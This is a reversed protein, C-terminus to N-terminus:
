PTALRFKALRDLYTIFGEYPSSGKAFNCTKCCPVCNDPTYGLDNDKRDVGNYIYPLRNDSISLDKRQSHVPKQLGQPSTGCYHCDQKTLSYFQDRSLSFELERKVAGRKYHIILSNRAAEDGPLSHWQAAEKMLCGCSKTAGRVLSSGKVETTDGCDCQCTWKSGLGARDFHLGVVVLRTFRQGVLDVRRACGTSCATTRGNNVRTAMIEKPPSGCDCQFIWHSLTKHVRSFRVATLKGFRQGTLELRKAM